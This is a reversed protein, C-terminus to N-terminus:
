KDRLVIKVKYLRIFPRGKPLMGAWHLQPIHLDYWASLIVVVGVLTDSVEVVKHPSASSDHVFCRTLSCWLFSQCPGLLSSCWFVDMLYYLPIRSNSCIIGAWAIVGLFLLWNGPYEPSLLSNERGVFVPIQLWYQHLLIKWFISRIVIASVM